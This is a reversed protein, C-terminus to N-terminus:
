KEPMFRPKGGAVGFEDNNTNGLDESTGFPNEEKGGDSSTTQPPPTPTESKNVKTQIQPKNKSQSEYKAKIQKYYEEPKSELLETAGTAQAQFYEAGLKKVTDKNKGTALGKALNSGEEPSIQGSGVQTMIYQILSFLAIAEAENLTDMYTQSLRLEEATMIPCKPCMEKIKTAMVDVAKQIGHLVIMDVALTPIMKALGKTLTGSWKGAKLSLPAVKNAQKLTNMGMELVTGVVSKPVRWADDFMKLMEEDTQKLFNRFIQLDEATRFTQRGVLESLRLATSADPAVKFFQTLPKYLKHVQPLFAFFISMVANASDGRQLYYAGLGLGVAVDLGYMFTVFPTAGGFSAIIAVIGIGLQIWAGYDDIFKDLNTRLDVGYYEALKKRNELLLDYEAKESPSLMNYDFWSGGPYEIMPGMDVKEKRPPHYTKHSDRFEQLLRDIEANKQNYLKRNEPTMGDANRIEDRRKQMQLYEDKQAQPTNDNWYLKGDNDRYTFADTIMRMKTNLELYEDYTLSSFGEPVKLGGYISLGEKTRSKYKEVMRQDQLIPSLLVPVNESASGASTAVVIAFSSDTTLRKEKEKDYQKVAFSYDIEVTGDESVDISVPYKKEPEPTKNEKQQQVETAKAKEMQKRLEEPDEGFVVNFSVSVSQNPKLEVPKTFSQSKEMDPIKQSGVLGGIVKFGFGVFLKADTIKITEQTFNTLRYNIVYIEDAKDFYWKNEKVESSGVPSPVLILKPNRPSPTSIKGIDDDDGKPVWIKDMYFKPEYWIGEGDETERFTFWMPKYKTIPETKGDGRRIIFTWFKDDPTQFSAVSDNPFWTSFPNSKLSTAIHQPTEGKFRFGYTSNKINQPTDGFTWYKTGAPLEITSYNNMNKPAKLKTNQSLLKPTGYNANPAASSTSAESIIEEEKYLNETLTKSTDYSMYLLVRELLQQQYKNQM